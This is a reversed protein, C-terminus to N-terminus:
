EAVDKVAVPWSALLNDVTTTYHAVLLATARPADRALVAELIDAHEKEVDRAKTASAAIPGSWLRYLETAAALTDCFDTLVEIGCAEILKAHFDRHAKFWEPNSHRSENPSRRPTRTLRHHAATLESEWELTGREIALTLALSETHCRVKTLDRLEVPDLRPIFYGQGTSSRVLRDNGLLILAERVVTTSTGFEKSLVGPQLRDGPKLKGEFISQRLKRSVDHVLSKADGRRSM